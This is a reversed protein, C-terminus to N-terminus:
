AMQSLKRYLLFLLVGVAAIWVKPDFQQPILQEAQTHFIERLAHWIQHLGHQQIFLWISLLLCCPSWLRAWLPTRRPLQKMVRQSFGHDELPITQKQESFFQRLLAEDDKNSSTYFQKMNMRNDNMAM